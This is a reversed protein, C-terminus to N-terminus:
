AALVYPFEFLNRIMIQSDNCRAIQEDFKYVLNSARGSEGNLSRPFFNILWIYIFDSDIPYIQVGEILNSCILVVEDL